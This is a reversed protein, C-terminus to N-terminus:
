ETEPLLPLKQERAAQWAKEGLIRRLESEALAAVQAQLRAREEADLSADDGLREVAAHAERSVEFAQTVATRGVEEHVAEYLAVYNEDQSREFDAFRRDGLLTRVAALFDAQARAEEEEPMEEIDLLELMPDFHRTRVVAIARLEAASLEIAELRLDPGAGNGVVSSRALFEDLAVPGLLALLEARLRAHAERRRTEDEPLRIWQETENFQDNLREYRSLITMLKAFSEEPMPGAIFRMVAQDQCNLDWDDEPSWEVGLLRLALASYEKELKRRRQAEAKLWRAREAGGTWFTMRPQETRGRAAYSARLEALLLDRVTREPCGVARLNAVYTEYNTSELERWHFRNTVLVVPPATTGAVAPSPSVTEVPAAVAPPGGDPVPAPRLFWVVGGALLLNLALSALLLKRNPQM